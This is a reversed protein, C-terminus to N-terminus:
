RGGGWEGGVLSERLAFLFLVLCYRAVERYCAQDRARDDRRERRALQVEVGERKAANPHHRRVM